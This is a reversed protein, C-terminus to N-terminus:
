KINIHLYINIFSVQIQDKSLAEYKKTDARIVSVEVNTNSIKEKMVQRLIKLALIQAEQLSM